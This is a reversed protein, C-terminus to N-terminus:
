GVKKTPGHNLFSRLEQGPQFSLTTTPPILIPAGTRPNRVARQSRRKKTFTGFGPYTFRPTVRRTIKSKIFYNGLERFVADVLVVVTKKTLKPPLGPARTVRAILQRKTM